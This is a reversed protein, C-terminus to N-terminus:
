CGARQPPSFGLGSKYYKGIELSYINGSPGIELYRFLDSVESNPLSTCLWSKLADVLWKM